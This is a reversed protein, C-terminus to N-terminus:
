YIPRKDRADKNDKVYCQHWFHSGQDTTGNVVKGAVLLTFTFYHLSFTAHSTVTLIVDSVVVVVVWYRLLDSENASLLAVCPRDLQRVNVSTLTQTVVPLQILTFHYVCSSVSRNGLTNITGHRLLFDALLLLSELRRHRSWTILRM